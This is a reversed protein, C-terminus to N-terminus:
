ARPSYDESLSCGRGAHGTVERVGSAYIFTTERERRNNCRFRGMLTSPAQSFHSRLTNLLESLTKVHPTAPKLLDLLLSFFRTGCSALFIDLQKAEPTDNERFFVHVQEEYVPRASGDGEFPELRGYLPMAAPVPPPTEGSETAQTSAHAEKM